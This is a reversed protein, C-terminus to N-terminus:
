LKYKIGTQLNITYPKFPNSNNRYASIHHKYLFELDFVFKKTLIVQLGFGTNASVNLKSLNLANGIKFADTNPANAIFADKTTRLYSFGGILHLDIKKDIVRYKLEFPFELYTIEQTIEIQSNNSILSEINEITTPSYDTSVGSFSYINLLQGNSNTTNINNTTYNTKTKNFGFRLILDKTAQYNLCVGYNFSTQQSKNQNVLADDISSGKKGSGYYTLISNATFSWKNTRKKDSKKKTNKETKLNLKPIIFTNENINIKHYALTNVTSFKIAKKDEKQIFESSKSSNPSVSQKNKSKQTSTYSNDNKASGPSQNNTIEDEKSHNSSSSSKNFDTKLVTNTPLNNQQQTQSKFDSKIIENNTASTVQKTNIEANNIQNITSFPNGNFLIFAIIVSGLSIGGFKLWFPVISRDRKDQKLETEINKWVNADPTEDLNQLQESLVKGIDKKIGM